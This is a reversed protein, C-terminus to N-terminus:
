RRRKAKKGRVGRKERVSEKFELCCMDRGGSRLDVIWAWDITFTEPLAKMFSDIIAKNFSVRAVADNDADDDTYVQVEYFSM